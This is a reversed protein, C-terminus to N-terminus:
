WEQNRLDDCASVRIRFQTASFVVLFLRLRVYRMPTLITRKRRNEHKEKWKQSLLDDNELMTACVVACMTCMKLSKGLRCCRMENKLCRLIYISNKPDCVTKVYYRIFSHSIRKEYLSWNVSLFVKLKFFFIDDDDSDYQQCPRRKMIIIREM